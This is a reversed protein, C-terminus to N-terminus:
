QGSYRQLYDEYIAAVEGAKLETSYCQLGAVQAGSATSYERVNDDEYKQLTCTHVGGVWLETGESTLLEMLLQKRGELSGTKYSSNGILTAEWNTEWNEPIDEKGSPLYYASGVGRNGSGTGKATLYKRIDNDLMEQSIFGVPNYKTMFGANFYECRIDKSLDVNQYVMEQGNIYVTIWDNTITVTYFTWTDDKDAIYNDARFENGTSDGCEFAVSGNARVVLAYDCDGKAGHRESVDGYGGESTGLHKDCYATRKITLVPSFNSQGDQQWKQKSWFSISVGTNWKPRPFEYDFDFLDENKNLKEAPVKGIIESTIGAQELTEVLDTRGIYPWEFQIGKKAEKNADTLTYIGNEKVAGNTAILNVADATVVYDVAAVTPITAGTPVPPRTAPATSTTPPMSPIVVPAKSAPAQSAPAQSAPVSSAPATSEAPQESAAPAQSEVPVPTPAPEIKLAWKLILQADALTMNGDENADAAKLEADTADNKIKLAIKLATQADDLKVEGDYNLDGRLFMQSAAEEKDELIYSMGAYATTPLAMSLALAGALLKKKKGNMKKM